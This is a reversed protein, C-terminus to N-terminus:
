PIIFPKSCPIVILVLEYVQLMIIKTLKNTGLFDSIELITDYANRKAYCNILNLAYNRKLTIAETKLPNQPKDPRYSQLAKYIIKLIQTEPTSKKSTSIEKQRKYELKKLCWTIAYFYHYFEKEKENLHKPYEHQNIKQLFDEETISYELIQELFNKDLVVKNAIRRAINGAINEYQMQNM